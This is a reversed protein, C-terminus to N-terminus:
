ENGTKRGSKKSPPGYAELDLDAKVAELDPPSGEPEHSSAKSASKLNNIESQLKGIAEWVSPTPPAKDFRQLGLLEVPSVGLGEAIKDLTNLNPTTEGQLYSTLQNRHVGCVRSFEAMNSKFRGAYLENLCNIFLFSAKTM